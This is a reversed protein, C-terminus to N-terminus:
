RIVHITLGEIKLKAWTKDATMIEIKKLKALALCARDGFSLGHPKTEKRLFAAQLAQDFSFPIIENIFESAINKAEDPSLGINILVAIVESFNVTSLLAHPLVKEVQEYGPEEQLLALLASADLIIKKAM